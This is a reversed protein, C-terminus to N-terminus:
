LVASLLHKGKEAVSESDFEELATIVEKFCAAAASGEVVPSLSLLRQQAAYWDIQMLAPLADLVTSIREREPASISKRGTHVENQKPLKEISDLAECLLLEYRALMEERVDNKKAASELEGAIGALTRAGLNAAVGKATHALRVAEEHASADHQMRELADRLEMGSSRYHKAFRDLLRLYLERNGGVNSLGAQVDIGKLVSLAEQSPTEGSAADTSAPGSTEPPAATQPPLAAPLPASAPGGALPEGADQKGAPAHANKPLWVDLAAYLVNPDIPKTLHENMGANLSKERDGSMAHATMALIPVADAGTKGSTRILQTATVGDMVPMQIDMLILAFDKKLFLDVAEQGNSAVEVEMGVQELLETAIQQNIENDEVLLIKGGAKVPPAEDTSPSAAAKEANQDFFKLVTEALSEQNVPKLIIIAPDLNVGREIWVELEQQSLMVMYPLATNEYLKSDYRGLVDPNTSAWDLLALDFSGASAEILPALQLPDFAEVSAGLATLEAMAARREENKEGVIALKRGHLLDPSFSVTPQSASRGSAPIHWAAYRTSHVLEPVWLFFADEGGYSAMRAILRMRYESKGDVTKWFLM